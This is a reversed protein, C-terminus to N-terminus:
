AVDEQIMSEHLEHANTNVSVLWSDDEQVGQLASYANFEARFAYIAFLKDASM